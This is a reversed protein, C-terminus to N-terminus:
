RTDQPTDQLIDPKQVCFFFLLFTNKFSYHITNIRKFNGKTLTYISSQITYNIFHLYLLIYLFFFLSLGSSLGAIAAGGGRQERTSPSPNM